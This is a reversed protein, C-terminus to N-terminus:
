RQTTRWWQLLRTKTTRVEAYNVTGAAGDGAPPGPDDKHVFGLAEPLTTGKRQHPGLCTRRLVLYPITEKEQGCVRCMVSTDDTNEDFRRRHVLTRLARARAEFLLGSGGNNGYMRKKKIENKCSRYVTLTAKSRM